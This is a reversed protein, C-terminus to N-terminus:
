GMGWAAAVVAGGPDSVAPTGADTVLAVDSGAEL